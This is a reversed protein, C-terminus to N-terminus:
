SAVEIVDRCDVCYPLNTLFPDIKTIPTCIDERTYTTNPDNELFRDRHKEVIIVGQARFDAHVMANVFTERIAEHLVM